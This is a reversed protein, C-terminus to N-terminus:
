YKQQKESYLILTAIFRKYPLNIKGKSIIMNTLLGYAQILMDM